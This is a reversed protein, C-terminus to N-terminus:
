AAVVGDTPEDWGPAFSVEQTITFEGGADEASAGPIQPGLEVAILRYADGTEVPTNGAVGLRQLLYVTTGEPLAEYAENGPSGPTNVSQPAYTYVLAPTEYTTTGLFQATKTQCMKRQKNVKETTASPWWDGVMHCSINEGATVEVSTAAAPDTPETDLVVLSQNGFSQTTTPMQLITM